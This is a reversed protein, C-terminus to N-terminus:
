RGAAGLEHRELAAALAMAAGRDDDGTIPRRDLYYQRTAGGPTSECVDVIGGDETVRAAVATWAQQAVPLYTARDLWGLRLGRAMATFIMATASSERYAGPEDIVNTWAGDPAQAAALAQMQRRYSALLPERAPHASPLATLTEMLALAAFGNGRGWAVPMQAAHVFLGDPRQLRRAYDLVLGAAADLDGTRGGLAATRTLVSAAMFMDDTWGGGFEALGDPRRGAARAAGDLALTHAAADSEALEAFVITGAIASLALRAGFVPREGSLWPSVHDRARQTWQQEGTLRSLRVMGAWSMAPIYSMGPTQPYKAALLRAIALPDRAVRSELATRLPSPAPETRSLAIELPASTVPVEGLGTTADRTLLARWTPASSGVEVILDPGQFAVWREVRGTVAPDIALLASVTWQRRVADPAQSKFWRVDELIAAGTGAPADIAPVIVVHRRPTRGAASGNELTPMRRDAGAIAAAGVRRPEGELSAVAQIARDSPVAAGPEAPRSAPAISQALIALAVLARM